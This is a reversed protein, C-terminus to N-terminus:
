VSTGGNRHSGHLEALFRTVAIETKADRLTGHRCADLLNFISRFQISAGEELPSGDGEPTVQKAGSVNVATLFIQESLIGPAVFFPGGLFRVDDPSVIFGAEERVEEAARHLVGREGVDEKELVGAVIEEVFLHSREDPVPPTKDKRFFAAPRLVNRTLVEVGRETQRYILVAVADLKPRDVVDVRYEPSTSGDERRNQCRLRRVQLFGEDCRSRSTLDELVEIDRVPSSEEQAPM